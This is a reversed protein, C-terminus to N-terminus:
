VEKLTEGLKGMLKILRDDAFKEIYIKVPEMPLSDITVRAIKDDASIIGADVLMDSFEWSVIM